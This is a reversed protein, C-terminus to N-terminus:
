RMKDSVIPAKQMQEISQDIQEDAKKNKEEERDAELLQEQKNLDMLDRECKQLKKKYDYAENTDMGEALMKRIM